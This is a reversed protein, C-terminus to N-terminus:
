LLPIRKSVPQKTRRVPQASKLSKRSGQMFKYHSNYANRNM